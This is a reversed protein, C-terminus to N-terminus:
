SEDNDYEGADLGSDYFIGTCVSLTEANSIPYLPTLALVIDQTSSKSSLLIIFVYTENNKKRIAECLSLGDMEPMMWDLIAM